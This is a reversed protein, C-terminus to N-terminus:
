EDNKYGKVLIPAAYVVAILIIGTVLCAAEIIKQRIM